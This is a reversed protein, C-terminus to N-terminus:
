KGAIRNCGVTTSVSGDEALLMETKAKDFVAHGKVVEVRWTGILRNAAASLM